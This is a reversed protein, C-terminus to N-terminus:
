GRRSVALIEHNSTGLHACGCFHFRRRGRSIFDFSRGCALVATETGMARTERFTHHDSHSTAKCVQGAVAYQGELVVHPCDAFEALCYFLSRINGADLLHPSVGVM